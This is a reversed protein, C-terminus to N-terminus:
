GVTKKDKPHIDDAEGVDITVALGSHKVNKATLAQAERVEALYEDGPNVAKAQFNALSVIYFPFDGQGFQKRWDAILAPLVRRYQEGRGWNTEGQYWIAGRIALPTLPAIMGNYLVSPLTPNSETDYPKTSIDKVDVGVKAKWEGALSHNTGGQSLFLEEPKGLFGARNRPDFARVVIVNRGPKLVGAGIPYIRWAWDATLSGVQQGNIWVTDTEAIRNLNLTAADGSPLDISKRYWIVGHGDKVGLDDIGNPVKTPKWDSEDLDPSEWHAPTGPDNKLLWRDAYTGFAPEGAKQSAAIEALQPDFDGVTAIAERSAWAEGSTGGWSANILGIPVKLERQLKRGFYYGVASFGSWPDPSVSTPSCVAWKGNLTSLPAYGVAQGVTLLRINPENAAAVEAAGNVAGALSMQMNSQGSCIWVDGVLVDDLEVKSAGSVLVKYPGGVKPPKVRAIWKGDTGAVGSAKQGEIEVTVRDGPTSWGWFTNARDRQLVMHDGFAPSLFPLAPPMPAVLM